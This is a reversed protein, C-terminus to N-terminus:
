FDVAMGKKEWDGFRVPDLGDRGGLETPSATTGAAKRREEAESLARLAAPALDPKKTLDTM